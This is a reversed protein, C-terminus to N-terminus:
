YYDFSGHMTLHFDGHLLQFQHESCIASLHTTPYACYARENKFVTERANYANTISNCHSSSFTESFM